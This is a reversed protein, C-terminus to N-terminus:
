AETRLGKAFQEAFAVYLILTPVAALFAASMRIGFDIGSTSAGIAPLVLTVPAAPADSGTVLTFAFLFENYIQTFQYIFVVGFMPKSIPLIVRRYIKTISAGDIKGAEVLSNPLSQYYSRFLITCIPIGYAIHTIVLPVLEAHYGQFFPISAVMPELMRALPFINNWFRALPVLVAQYPVFVGVVFLMLMGMQARWNVMTLGYAAMSGFLVSGITAPISMILSNFFSGSLQELAFQINGLTFGEGVPPAFPLSRAVSENTKIATMIGTELPVLFFGLFFVVLAYQAVRRLNVDEVLSAVDFSGTSSSQSM